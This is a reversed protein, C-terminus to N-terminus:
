YRYRAEFTVTPPAAPYGFVQSADNQFDRSGSQWQALSTKPQMLNEGRLTLNLNDRVAWAVLLSLDNYHEKFGMGTPLASDYRPGTWSWRGEIRVEGLVRFASAGLTQFPTRVIASAKSLQQGPAALLDRAEQNRYFGALGWVATKYGGSLEASQIRFQSGNRYIGSMSYWSPIYTGGTYDYYVRNSFLTRSLVLDAKWPGSAYGLGAQASRSRENNLKEGGYQANFIANYLLPNSFGTGANAYIRFGGPLSGNLGLKGTTDTITDDTNGGQAVPVTQRDRETRLSLVGRLGPLLEAQGEALLALRTGRASLRSAGSLDPNAAHEGSGDMGLTLSASSSYQWTLHGVAQNRRSNYSSTPKGDTNNPELRDQLVQGLTLEGTLIPSFQTQVTGSLVQSRNLDVRNGDYSHYNYSVYSIPIPVRSYSNFYNLTVLTDQGVQCGVGLFLGHHKYQNAPDLVQNEKQGTFAMRVWGRDTGYASSLGGRVIGQNGVAARIDGSLGAPAAGASYLAVVGGMASSGFRTTSPGQQVEVRDLGALNVLSINVGGLGTADDLRLGNLTVATDQARAGGLYVAGATGVGGNTFVRGPLEGQLLDTLNGAGSRELAAKDLVLVPNPTKLIEVPNAEATVTVTASAEAWPRPADDVRTTAGWVTAGVALLLTIRANGM